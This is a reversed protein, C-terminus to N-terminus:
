VVSSKAQGSTPTISAGVEDGGDALLTAPLSRVCPATEADMASRERSGASQEAIVTGFMSRALARLHIQADAASVAVGYTSQM